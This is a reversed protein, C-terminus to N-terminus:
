SLLVDKILINDILRTTGFFVAMSLLVSNEIEDLEALTLPDAASVYDLRALSEATIIDTMLQRLQSGSRTGEHVATEATRLAQNLVTAAQRQESNLYRNRSSLALGDPERVIPCVIMELNFNLDQVMQKLVAAQQADKQGFYARTPQVINFLKAVVTAVGLFHTPRSSGELPKTVHALHIETQFNPPYMEGDAPVFVLDVSEQKLLAFDRALARPYTSLDENPAFQTPNVFITAAVRENENHARRALSLHGEHLYGMTPVLGWSLKPNAWRAARVEAITKAIIM